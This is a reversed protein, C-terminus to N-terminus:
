QTASRPRNRRPPVMPVHSSTDNIETNIQVTEGRRILKKTGMTGSSQRSDLEAEWYEDLENLTGLMVWTCLGVFSCFIDFSSHVIALLVVNNNEGDRTQLIMLELILQPINELLVSGFSAMSLYRRTAATIRASTSDLGFVGSYMLRIINMDLCSLTILLVFSNPNNFHWLRFKINQRESRFIYALIFSNFLTSLIQSGLFWSFFGRLNASRYLDVMLLIDTIIDLLGQSAQVITGHKANGNSLCYSLGTLFIGISGVGVNVIIAYWNDIACTSGLTQLTKAGNVCTYRHHGTEGAACDEVTWTRGNRYKRRDELYCPHGLSYVMWHADSVFHKCQSRVASCYCKGDITNWSVLGNDCTAPNDLARIM